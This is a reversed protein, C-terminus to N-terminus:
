ERSRKRAELTALQRRREYYEHRYYYAWIEKCLRLLLPNPPNLIPINRAIRLLIGISYQNIAWRRVADKVYAWPRFRFHKWGGNFRGGLEWIESQYLPIRGRWEAFARGYKKGSLVVKDVTDMPDTHIAVAERCYILQMGRDRLRWALDMDEVVPLEPTFLGAEIAFNKKLSVDATVFFAGSVVPEGGTAYGTQVIDSDSWRLLDVGDEGPTIRGLVAVEPTPYKCHLDLHLRVHDAHVLIDSDMLLVIPARAALIGTNRATGARRREQWIYRIEASKNKAQEAVMENTGDDSGDDVVLIEFCCKDISQHRLAELTDRLRERRNYTPIVISLEPQM